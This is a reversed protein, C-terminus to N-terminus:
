HPNTLDIEELHEVVRVKWGMEHDIRFRLRDAASPEGHVLYTMRPPKPAGKMWALLQDADAHASMTDIQAVQATIDVEEGFIHLTRQGDQLQAGRTGGAQFGSLVVVNNPDTGFAKLHHLVRGGSLMGSASIIIMPGRAENLAISQEVTRVMRARSYMAEFDEAGVRQEDPYRSYLSSANIAMPSNVFVPVEPIRGSDVLRSIHLLLMQTRGVTFAPILVVGARELVPGLIEALQDEAPFDGHLRNGYTSEMVLVDSGPFPRPEKMLADNNQGVDGSFYVTGAPTTVEISSAGIIHGAPTWKASVGPAVDYSEDRDVLQVRTLATDADESTYLPEPKQHKSYGKKAAYAAEEEMIHASDPLLLSMLEATPKTALIPGAFGDRVLAPLYGTHDIHAHTILTADITSPAVPFADRNRLRLQKYGQFVGCDVLM